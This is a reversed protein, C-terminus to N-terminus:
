KLFFPKDTGSKYGKFHLLLDLVLHLFAGITFLIVLEFIELPLLLVGIVLAGIISDVQELVYFLFGKIGKEQRGPELSFQRKIFSTPLEGLSYGLGLLFGLIFPNLDIKEPSLLLSTFYMFIGATLSMIVFGRLTKSDGFLRKNGFNVGLDIPVKLFGFLNYRIVVFHHVLGAILIPAILYFFNLVM